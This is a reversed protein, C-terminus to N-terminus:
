KVRRLAWILVELRRSFHLLPPIDPLQIGGAQAMSNTKIAAEARQLPWPLHHIEGRYVRERRDVAYLCYRATLWDELSGLKAEFVEGTPGYTAEFDAPPANRHTRHSFYSFKDGQPIISMRANFYPLHFWQRATAVAIPSAADLSFFFVGPRGGVKVYTRVNLEAFNTTAPVPVFGRVQVGTMYFPVVGVWAQGEYTDLELRAPILSRMVEPAIPWHAFLLNNWTQRMVWFGGALPYPRHETQEILKM